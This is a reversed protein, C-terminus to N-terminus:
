INLSYQHFNKKERKRVPVSDRPFKNTQPNIIEGVQSKIKITSIPTAENQTFVSLNPYKSIKTRTM